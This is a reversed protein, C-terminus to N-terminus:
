QKVFSSRLEKDENRCSVFYIGAALFSVDIRLQNTAPAIVQHLVENGLSNFVKLASKKNPLGSIILADNVPNPFINLGYFGSNDEEVGDALLGADLFVGSDYVGDVVDAIAIKLHYTENAIVGATATIVKTFGDYEITTEDSSVPCGSSDTCGGSLDWPDNCIYFNDNTSCNVSNIAVPNNTGPILAINKTGIINPGSIFIAFIDNYDDGVFDNYEDSAFVFRFQLTDGSPQFDFQLSCGNFTNCSCITSLDSDGPAFNDYSTSPSMNPGPANAVDGTTLLIGSTLGLITDNSSFTGAANLASSLEANSIIGNGAIQQALFSADSTATVSLQAEATICFFYAVVVVLFFATKMRSNENRLSYLCFSNSFNLPYWSSGKCLGKRGARNFMSKECRM